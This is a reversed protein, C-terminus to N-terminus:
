CMLVGATHVHTWRTGGKGLGHSPPVPCPPSFRGLARMQGRVEDGWWWLQPAAFFTQMYFAIAWVPRHIVAVSDGCRRRDM